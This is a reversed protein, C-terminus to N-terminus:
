IGKGCGGRVPSRCKQQLGEAEAGAHAAYLLPSRGMAETHTLSLTLPWALCRNLSDTLDTTASNSSCGPGFKLSPKSQRPACCHQTCAAGGCSAQFNNPTLMSSVSDSRMNFKNTSEFTHFFSVDAPPCKLNELGHRHRSGPLACARHTRELRTHRM